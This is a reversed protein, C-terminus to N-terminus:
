PLDYDFVLAEALHPQVRGVFAQHAPHVLYADRATADAFTLTFAHTYGHALGEPSNNLGWEFAQVEAIQGPLAAFSEVLATVTAAETAPQFRFLVIHRLM